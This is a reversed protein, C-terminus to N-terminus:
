CLVMAKNVFKLFLDCYRSEAEVLIKRFQKRYLKNFLTLNVIINIVRQLNTTRACLAEQHIVYHLKILNSKHGLNM